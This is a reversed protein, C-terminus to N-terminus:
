KAPAYSIGDELIQTIGAETTFAPYSYPKIDIRQCKGNEYEIEFLSAETSTNSIFVIVRENHLGGMEEICSEMDKINQYFYSTLNSSWPMYMILTKENRAEEIFPEDSEICATLFLFPIILFILYKKM